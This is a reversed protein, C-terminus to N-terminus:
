DKRPVRYINAWNNEINEDLMNRKRIYRQITIRSVKMLQSIAHVQKKLSLIKSSIMTM